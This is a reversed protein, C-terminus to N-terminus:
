LALLPMRTKKRTMEMIGLSTYGHLVTKIRDKKLIKEFEEYLKQRDEPSEMDIFDIMIVGGLNRLRLQRAIEQCAELNTKVITSALGKRGTFKGTNVDVVTMAECFDFIITGGSPLWVK